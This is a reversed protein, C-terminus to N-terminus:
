FCVVAPSRTTPHPLQMFPDLPEWDDDLFSLSGATPKSTISLGEMDALIAETVSVSIEHETDFILPPPYLQSGSTPIPTCPRELEWRDEDSESSDSEGEVDSRELEFAAVADSHIKVLRELELNANWLRLAMRTGMERTKQGAPSM